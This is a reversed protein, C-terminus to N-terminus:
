SHLLHTPTSRARIAWVASIIAAAEPILIETCVSRRESLWGPTVVCADYMGAPFCAAGPTRDGRVERARRALVGVASLPAQM